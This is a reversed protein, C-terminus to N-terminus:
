LFPVRMSKEILGKGWQDMSEGTERMGFIMLLNGAPRVLFDSVVIGGLSVLISPRGCARM